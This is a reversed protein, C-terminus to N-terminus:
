VTVTKVITKCISTAIEDLPAVIDVIGSNIVERPMGYVTCSKEDQAITVAGNRKMLKMGLIGDNGMGTMIVGTARAGYIQSVSRFLYDVSPKCNNEPPDDTIVIRNSIGDTAVAVKMQKGGQAIMVVNPEIIQEDVAEVIKLGCIRDLKDALSKTFMAPMHQVILIPVGIDAPLKPLVKQLANPGGTSIGIAIVQSSDGSRDPFAASPTTTEPKASTSPGKLISKIEFQRYFAKVNQKLCQSIQDRSQDMSDTEPKPIFDFAGLELSQITKESGEQTFNSLMIAGVKLSNDQIYQLVELGNAEPMEVDLILLDPKLSKIQSIAIKGNNATGVVQVEAMESLIDSVIKRYVITDDVVLVRIKQKPAMRHGNCLNSQRAMINM